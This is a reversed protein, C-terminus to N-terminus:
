FCWFTHKKFLYDDSLIVHIHLLLYNLVYKFFLSKKNHFCLLGWIVLIYIKWKTAFFFCKRQFFINCTFGLIGYELYFVKHVTQAMVWLFITKIYCVAPGTMFDARHLVDTWANIGWIINDCQYTDRRPLPPMQMSVCGKHDYCLRYRHWDKRLLYLLLSLNLLQAAKFGWILGDNSM